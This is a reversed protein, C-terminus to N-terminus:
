TNCINQLISISGKQKTTYNLSSNYLINQKDTSLAMSLHDTM